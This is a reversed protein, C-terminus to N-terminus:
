ILEADPRKKLDEVAADSAADGAELPAATSLLPRRAAALDAVVVVAVVVLLTIDVVPRTEFM